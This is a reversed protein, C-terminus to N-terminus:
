EAEADRVAAAVARVEREMGGRAMYLIHRLWAVLVVALGALAVGSLLDVGLAADLCLVVLWLVSAGLAGQYQNVLTGFPRPRDAAAVRTAPASDAGPEPAPLRKLSRLGHVLVVHERSLALVLGGAALAALVAPRPHREYVRYLLGLQFLAPTLHHYLWDLYVGTWSETGRYRAIEGDVKDLLFSAYVLLAALPGAWPRELTALPGAAAGVLIMWVSVQNASVRTHLLLWTIRISLVRHIRYWWAQGGLEKGRHCIPALEAISPVM